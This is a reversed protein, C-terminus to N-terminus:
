KLTWIFKLILQTLNFSYILKSLNPFKAINFKENTSFTNKLFISILLTMPDIKTTGQSNQIKIGSINCIFYLM